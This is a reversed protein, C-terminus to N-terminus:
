PMTELDLVIIGKKKDTGRIRQFFDIFPLGSSAEICDEAFVDGFYEKKIKTRNINTNQILTSAISLNLECMCYCGDWDKPIKKNTVFSGDIYIKKGGAQKILRGFSLIGSLIKKRKFSFDFKEKFELWKANHLGEPLYGINDYIYFDPIM